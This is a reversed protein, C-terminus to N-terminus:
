FVFLFFLLCVISKGTFYKAPLSPEIPFEKLLFNVTKSMVLGLGIDCICYIKLNTNDAAEQAKPDNKVASQGCRDVCLKINDFTRKFFSFSFQENAMVLPELIFWMCAQVKDLEPTKTNSYNQYFPMHALLHVVYPLVCDPVIAKANGSVGRSKFVERRRNINSMMHHKMKKKMMGDEMVGGLAFFALFELGLNLSSLNKNLKFLFRDRVFQQNDLICLALAHWQTPHMIDLTVAYKGYVHENNSNITTLADFSAVKLMALGANLRLYAREYITGALGKDNVDGNNQIM